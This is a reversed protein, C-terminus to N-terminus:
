RACAVGPEPVFARVAFGLAFVFFSTAWVFFGAHMDRFDHESCLVFAATGSAVFLLAHLAAWGGRVRTAYFPLFLVLLNSPYFPFGFLLAHIGFMTKPAGIISFDLAPLVLSVAFAVGGALFLSSGAKAPTDGPPRAAEAVISRIEAAQRIARFAGGPVFTGHAPCVGVVAAADTM